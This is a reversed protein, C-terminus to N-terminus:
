IKNNAWSNVEVLYSMLLRLNTPSSNQVLDAREPKMLCLKANKQYRLKFYLVWNYGSYQFVFQDSVKKVVYFVVHFWTRLNLVRVEKVFFWIFHNTRWSQTAFDLDSGRHTHLNNQDLMNTIEM